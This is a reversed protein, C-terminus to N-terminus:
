PSTGGRPARPTVFMVVRSRPSLWRTVASAVTTRNADRFRRLDRKLYAPTGAYAAYRAVRNARAVLSELGQLLTAELIRRARVVEDNTPGDRTFRSLEEDIVRLVRAPTVGPRAVARIEFQGGLMEGAQWASVRQVLKDRIVLRQYLRSSKGGALIHAALELEADDKRFPPPSRWTLTVQAAQVRDTAHLRLETTRPTVPRTLTVHRPVPRRPMWAFYRAILKKTRALDMDGAVVLTANSPVYYARYFAAVDELRAASLDKMTGITLNHNGHGKPWLAQQVLLDAKGYPQDEVNQRRENKVVKRQNDLVKQNMADWLGAMRDAELYLALPLFNSPLQEFYNTRDASTTGNNWGGAAELLKDFRGDPVHKSGKFMLHEFLHAFGTKGPREDKSGVHYWVYVVVTPSSRDQHLVVRLGNTLRYSVVPLSVKAPKKGASAHPTLFLLLVVLALRAAATAASSASASM